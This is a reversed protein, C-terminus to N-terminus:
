DTDATSQNIQVSGIQKVLRFGPLSENKSETSLRKTLVIRFKTLVDETIQYIFPRKQRCTNTLSLWGPENATYYLLPAKDGYPWYLEFPAALNLVEASDRIGLGYLEGAIVSNRALLHKFNQLTVTALRVQFISIASLCLILVGLALKNLAFLRVIPTAAILFSICLLMPMIYYPLPQRLSIPILLVTEFLLLAAFGRRIDPRVKEQNVRTGIEESLWWIVAPVIVFLAVNRVYASGCAYLIKSLHTMIYEPTSPMNRLQTGTMFFNTEGVSLTLYYKSSNQFPIHGAWFAFIIEPLLGVTFGALIIIAQQIRKRGSMPHSFLLLLITLPVVSQIYIYRIGCALGAFFAAVFLQGPSRDLKFAMTILPIVMALAITDPQPTALSLMMQYSTATLFWAVLGALPLEGWLSAGLWVFALVPVAAILTLIRGATMYDLGFAHFVNLLIPYGAPEATNTSSGLGGEREELAMWVYGFIDNLVLQHHTAFLYFGYLLVVSLSALWPLGRWHLIQPVTELTRNRRNYHKVMLIGAAEKRNRIHRAGM